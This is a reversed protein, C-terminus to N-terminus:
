GEMDDVVDDGVAHINMLFYRRPGVRENRMEECQLYKEEM